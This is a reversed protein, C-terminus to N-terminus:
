CIATSRFMDMYTYIILFCVFTDLIGSLGDGALRTDLHFGERFLLRSWPGQCFGDIVIVGKASGLVSGLFRGGSLFVFFVELCKLVYGEGLYFLILIVVVVAVAVVIVFSSFM